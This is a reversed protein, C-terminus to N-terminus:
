KIGKLELSISPKEESEKYFTITRGIISVVEAGIADAIQYAVEKKEVESNQLIKVKILERPAIADAVGQALTESFGEKGVRFIADLNHARKKLFARKKSTLNM